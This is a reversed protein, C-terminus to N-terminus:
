LEIGAREFALPELKRMERLDIPKFNRNLQLDAFREASLGGDRLLKGRVPGIVEDQFSAPQKKLWSYYTESSPVSVTKGTTTSRAARTDSLDFRKYRGDLEATTTSRCNIHAPPRPGKGFKYVKGDLSRCIVTTRSDLTSLWKYGILIAENEKWTEFRATSAVFQVATRTIADSHRKVLGLEGDKFNRAVTGRIAKSIQANTQGEYVGRRISNTLYKTDSEAWDAIFPELLKGGDVGAVLLPQTFIAARVQNPAPVVSDFGANDLAKAEFAAEYEAINILSLELEQQYNGLIERIDKRTQALLATLRTRSYSTLEEGLLRKSIYLDIERLFPLIKKIENSKLGEVLVQNRVASDTLQQSQM